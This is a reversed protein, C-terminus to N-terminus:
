EVKVGAAALEKEAAAITEAAIGRTADRILRTRFGCAALDKATATVCYDFALGVCVVDTVGLASLIKELGTHEARSGDAAPASGVGSYSDVAQLTGKRVIVDTPLVVLDPHWAAGASGQVCHAPWMMQHSGDPDPSPRAEFVRSGPNNTVFSTHDVPHWDATLVVVDPKLTDRLGNIVPVVADGDPVALSGGACFDRQVDVIILATKSTM